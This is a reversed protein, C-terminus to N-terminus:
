HIVTVFLRLDVMTIEIGSIGCLQVLKCSKHPARWTRSMDKKWNVPAPLKRNTGDLNLRSKSCKRCTLRWFALRFDASYFAYIFPNIASNIWGLCIFDSGIMKNWLFIPIIIYWSIVTINYSLLESFIVSIFQFSFICIYSYSLHITHM